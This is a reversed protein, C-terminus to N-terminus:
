APEDHESFAALSKDWNELAESAVAAASAATGDRM